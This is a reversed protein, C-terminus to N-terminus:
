GVRARRRGGRSGSRWRCGPADRQLLQAPVLFCLGSKTSARSPIRRTRPSSSGSCAQGVMPLRPDPSRRFRDVRRPRVRDGPTGRPSGAPGRDPACRCGSPPSWGRRGAASWPVLIWLGLRNKARPRSVLRRTRPLSWGSVRMLMLERATTSSAWPSYSSASGSYKSPRSPYRRTNPSSCVSVRRIARWGRPIGSESPGGRRPRASGEALREFGAAPDQTVVM